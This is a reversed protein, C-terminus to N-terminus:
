ARADRGSSASGGEPALVDVTARAIATMESRDVGSRARLALSQVMATALRGLVAPSMNASVEGRDRAIAFRREFTGDLSAILRGLAARIAPTEAAEAPATCTVLCGRATVGSLYHDISMAFFAALEDRVPRAAPLATDLAAETEAIVRDVVALYMAEKDPFTDYLRPRSVGAAGALDTLSAGAYGKEWFVGQVADLLGGDDIRKPRGRARRSEEM